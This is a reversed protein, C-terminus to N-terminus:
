IRTLPFKLEVSVKFINELFYSIEVGENVLFKLFEHPTQERITERKPPKVKVGACWSQAPIPESFNKRRHELNQSLPFLIKNGKYCQNKGPECM